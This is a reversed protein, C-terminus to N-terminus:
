FLDSSVPEWLEEYHRTSDPVRPVLTEEICIWLASALQELRESYAPILRDGHLGLGHKSKMRAANPLDM